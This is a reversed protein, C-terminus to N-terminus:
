KSTIFLNKLIAQHILTGSVLGVAMNSSIIASIATIIMVMYDTKPMKSSLARWDGTNYVVYLMSSILAPMPIKGIFNPFIAMELILAIGAVLSSLRTKAGNNVNMLTQGVVCNGSFGGTFASAINAIGLAGSEKFMSGDWGNMEKLKKIALLNESLGSVAVSFAYPLLKVIAKFYGEKAIIAGTNYQPIFTEKSLAIKGFDGVKFIPIDFFWLAGTAVIVVIITPPIATLNAMELAIIGAGCLLTLAITWSLKKGKMWERLQKRETSQIPLEKFHELQTMFILVALGILFGSIVNSPVYEILKYGQFLAILIHFVGSLAVVPLMYALGFKQTALALVIAVSSAGSIMGSQGGLISMIISIVISTSIGVVPEVGLLLGFAIAEPIMVLSVAIGSLFEKHWAVPLSDPSGFYASAAM